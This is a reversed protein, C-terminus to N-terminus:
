LDIRVAWCRTNESWVGQVPIMYDPRGEHLWSPSPSTFWVWTMLDLRDDPSFKKGAEHYNTARWVQTDISHADPHVSIPGMRCDSFGDVLAM